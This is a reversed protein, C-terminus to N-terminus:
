YYMWPEVQLRSLPSISATLHNNDPQNQVWNINYETYATSWTNQVRQASYKTNAANLTHQVQHISYKTYVTSPTYQVQHISYITYATRPTHQVLHISCETYATSLTHQLWYVSYNTYITTPMHWAQQISYETKDWSSAMTICLAIVSSPTRLHHNLPPRSSSLSFLSPVLIFSIVPNLFESTDTAM